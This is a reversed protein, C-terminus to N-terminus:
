CDAVVLRGIREAAAAGYASVGLTSASWPLAYQAPVTLGALAAASPADALKLVHEVGAHQCTGRLDRLVDWWDFADAAGLLLGLPCAVSVCEKIKHLHVQREPQGLGYVLNVARALTDTLNVCATILGDFSMYAADIVAAPHRFVLDCGDLAITLRREHGDITRRGLQMVDPWQIAHLVELHHAVFLAKRRMADVYRAVDEVEATSLAGGRRRHLEGKMPGSLGSVKEALPRM